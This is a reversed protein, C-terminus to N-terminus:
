PNEENFKERARYDQIVGGYPFGEAPSRAKEFLKNMKQIIEPHKNAINNSESIDVDLNYLETETNIGYRVGKWNDIRVSQRFGGKPMKRGWGDLQFEWNLHDHKMQSEGKLLPLISIGNSQEPIEIEAVQAFTPMLDQFGSIHGTVTGPEIKGKWVAIMPVRIGGEYLDRKIGRLKGNSDFFEPNHGAGETHPGNDSTFVILTNELEGMEQLKKLLRGIQKDLLTIKAAHLREQAPWGEDAYLEKNGIEYEHGHPARYSMFLFFPKETNLTDLYDFATQTRFDDKCEWEEWNYYVSDQKGNIYHMESDYNTAGFRSSWQEQVAFDFGRNYAWTSVDNPDDVHWKGIFATQYGADKMMEGMTTEEKKLAVRMWRDDSFHGNNGRITNYSSSIGTLLVARSPSCVANGAYFNTFKMGQKSLDDLVPTKITEQGYCGLEGFGLDDALLFLINPKTEYTSKTDCATLSILLLLYFLEKM